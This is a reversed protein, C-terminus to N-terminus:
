YFRFARRAHRASLESELQSIYGQLEAKNALNYEVKRGNKQISVVAKGTILNHLAARAEDLQQQTAM